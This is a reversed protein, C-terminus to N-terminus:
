ASCQHIRTNTAHKNTGSSYIREHFSILEDLVMAPDADKLIHGKGYNRIREAPAGLDFCAVPLNMEILEQAVYSFTEPWISPFLMLNIGSKEVLDPLDEVRYDDTQRVVSEDCHDEVRGLVVIQVSLGRRRIEESIGRVIKAGKHPAIMGVVGIRLEGTQSINIERPAFHTMKHHEVRMRKGDILPYAKRLLSTSDESFANVEDAMSILRGWIARWEVIDRARYFTAFGETNTDLCGKCETLAPINCFTGFNNLLTHSPCVAFFDHVFVRLFSGHRRKLEIILRAVAEPQNFSVANNYIIEKLKIKAALDVMFAYDPIAVEQDIRSGKIKLVCTFSQVRYCLVLVTAGGNIREDILARSFQNAGGGMDHDVILVVNESENPGLLMEVKSAQEVKPILAESLFKRSKEVVIRLEGKKLRAVARNCLDGFRGVLALKPNSAGNLTLQMTSSPPIEAEFTEGNELEAFLSVRDIAADPYRCGGRILFGSRLAYPFGDFKDFVDYRSQAISAKIPEVTGDALHVRLFLQLIELTEHFAWGISLFLGDRHALSDVSWHFKEM